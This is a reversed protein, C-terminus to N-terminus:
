KRTSLWKNVGRKRAIRRATQTMLCSLIVRLLHHVCAQDLWLKFFVAIPTSQKLLGSFIVLPPPPPLFTPNRPNWLGSVCASVQQLGPRIFSSLHGRQSLPERREDQGLVSAYSTVQSKGLQTRAHTGTAVLQCKYSRHILAVEFTKLWAGGM